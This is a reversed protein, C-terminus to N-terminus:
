AATQTAPEVMMADNSVARIRPRLNELVFALASFTVMVALFVIIPLASSRAAYVKAPSANSITEALVRDGAPVNAENQQHRLWIEFAQVSQSSLREAAAPSKAIGAVSLVPIVDGNADSTAPVAAAIVLGYLPGFQRRIRRLPDTDVLKAYQLALTTFRSPDAFSPANRKAASGVTTGSGDLVSRGEPFGDQTILMQSYSIFKQDQRYSVHVGNKLDVRAYSLFALGTALLLGVFLILKFRWLVRAHLKIDM